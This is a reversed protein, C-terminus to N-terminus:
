KGQGRVGNETIDQAKFKWNDRSARLKSHPAVGTAFLGWRALARLLRIDTTIM